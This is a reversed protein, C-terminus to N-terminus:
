ASLAWAGMSDVSGPTVRSYIRKQAGDLSASETKRGLRAIRLRLPHRRVHVRDHTRRPAGHM